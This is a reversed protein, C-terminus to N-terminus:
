KAISRAVAFIDKASISKTEGRDYAALRRNIEESWAEGVEATPPEQLSELLLDVLRSGEDKSLALGRQVLANVTDDM